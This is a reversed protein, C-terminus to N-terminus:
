AVVSVFRASDPLGIELGVFGRFRWAKGYLNRSSLNGVRYALALSCAPGCLVNTRFARPEAGGQSVDDVGFVCSAIERWEVDM